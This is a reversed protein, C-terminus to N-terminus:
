KGINYLNYLRMIKIIKHHKKNMPKSRINFNKSTYLIQNWIECM